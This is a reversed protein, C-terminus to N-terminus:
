RDQGLTQDIIDWVADSDMRVLMELLDRKEESNSSEQFLALVAQDYDGIMMGDLAAERLDESDASRYVELLTQEAGSGGAIGLAEVAHMQREPDSGDRAFRQLTETDGAIAHADVLQESMGPRDGLARLQELAGMAGLKDVAEEFEDPDNTASAIRYIADADDAILYAELVAERVEEDGEDYIAALMALAEPNGGIGIMRIAEERVEESGTNRATEILLAHADPHDIQSIVFLASEKLEDSGDGRLVRSAIPFAREPPAAILAELAALKLEEDDETQAWTVASAALLMPVLLKKSITNM